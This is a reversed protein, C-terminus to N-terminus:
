YYPLNYITTLDPRVFSKKTTVHSHALYALTNPRSYDTRTLDSAKGTLAMNCVMSMKFILKMASLIWGVGLWLGVRLGMGILQKQEFVDVMFVLLPFSDVTFLASPTLM